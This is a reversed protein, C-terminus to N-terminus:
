PDLTCGFGPRYRATAQAMGMSRATVLGDGAEVSVLLQALKDLDRRCSDIPRKSVFLCACTLEASYGTGLHALDSLRLMRWASVAALLLLVLVGALVQKSRKRM